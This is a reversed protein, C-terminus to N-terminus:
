SRSGIAYGSPTYDVRVPSNSAAIASQTNGYKTTRSNAPLNNFQKSSVSSRIGSAIDGLLNFTGRVGATISAVGTLVPTTKVGGQNSSTVGSTSSGAYGFYKAAYQAAVYALVVGGAIVLVKKTNMM